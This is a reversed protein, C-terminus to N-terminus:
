PIPLSAVFALIIPFAEDFPIFTTRTQDALFQYGDSARIRIEPESFADKSVPVSRAKAKIQLFHGVRVPDLIKSRILISLDLVDQPRSRNRIPQQLLARLKEAAIDNPTAAIIAVGPSLERTEVTPLRLTM